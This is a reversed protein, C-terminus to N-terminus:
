RQDDTGAASRDIVSLALLAVILFTFLLLKDM